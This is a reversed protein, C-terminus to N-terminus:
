WSRSYSRRSFGRCGIQFYCKYNCRYSEELQKVVAEVKTRFDQVLKEVEKDLKKKYEVMMATSTNVHATGASHM